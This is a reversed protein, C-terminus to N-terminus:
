EVGEISGSLGGNYKLTHKSVMIPVYGYNSEVSIYDGAKINPNGNYDFSVKYNYFKSVFNPLKSNNIPLTSIFLPNNLDFSPEKKDNNVKILQTQNNFSYVVKKPTRGKIEITKGVEGTIKLFIMYLFDNYDYASSKILIVNNGGRQTIHEQKILAFATPDSSTLCIIQENNELKISTSFNDKDNDEDSFGITGGYYSYNFSSIKEEDKYNIDGLLENKSIKDVMTKDINRLIITDDRDVYFLGEVMGLDQLFDALNTQKIGRCLFPTKNEITINHKYDYNGNLYINLYESMKNEGVLYNSYSLTGNKNELKAKSLKAMLNYATIIVEKDKYDNNFFYFEGMKTYNTMGNEDKIGIYPIYKSNETLYKTIGKPNLPDYLKDYDGITLSLENNPAEECLKDVQETIQFEILEEGKYIKSLGLDIRVIQIYHEPKTWEYVTMHFYTYNGKVDIFLNENTNNEINIIKNIQEKSNSLKIKANKITNDKFYFTIGNVGQAINMEFFIVGADFVLGEEYNNNYIERPTETTIFGCENNYKNFLMFTGDLKVYENYLISYNNIVRPTTLIENKTKGYKFPTLQVPRGQKNYYYIAVFDNEEAEKVDYLVEVYGDIERNFEKYYQM